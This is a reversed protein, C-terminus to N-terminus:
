LSLQNRLILIDGPNLWTPGLEEQKEFPRYQCIIPSPSIGHELEKNQLGDRDTPLNICSLKM